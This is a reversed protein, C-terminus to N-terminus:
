ADLPITVRIVTGEGAPSSLEFRGGIAAVRDSLGILGSGSKPDAGGVGDDRIEVQLLTTDTRATVVVESADAHKAVNTLTEAVVYYAAVEVSEPLRGAVDITLAVPLTSRRALAKLAPGLGGKSLIAPHLGRSIERLDDSVDTLGGIIAGIQEAVPNADARLAAEATRLELGLSVLRQQAGDHLDREVRRRATDAATVIRTRSAALESRAQANAIATGLLDTFDEVRAEIDAPLPDDRLAGVVAAGWVQGHVVIPVGVVSGIGTERIRLGALGGVDAGDMRAARGTRHVQEAVGGHGIPYREGLPRSTPPDDFWAILEASGDPDFRLLASHPLGLRHALEDAVARFVDTAPNGQAVLTAVRRLSAQQDALTQLERHSAELENRRSEAEAARMRAQGGLVNALLAIPVFIVIAVFDAEDSPVFGDNGLHFYMYIAASAVTTAVALGFDWGASVVLVGLLFLAGFAHNPAYRNLAFVSLTEAAILAAAVLVGLWVPKPRLFWSV